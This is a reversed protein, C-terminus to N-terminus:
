GVLTWPTWAKKTTSYTRAYSLKPNDYHWTQQRVYGDAYMVDMYFSKYMTTYPNGRLTEAIENDVCHFHGEKKLENLNTKANLKWRTMEAKVTIDKTGDFDIGNIKRPTELKTAKLAKEALKAVGNIFRSELTDVAKKLWSVKNTEAEITNLRENITDLNAIRVWKATDRQYWVEIDSGQYVMLVRSNWNGEDDSYQELVGTIAKDYPSHNLQINDITWRGPTKFTSLDTANSLHGAYRNNTKIHESGDFPVGDITTTNKFKDATSANGTINAILSKLYKKTGDITEDGSKHVLDGDNSAKVSIDDVGNFESGNVKGGGNLKTAVDAHLAKEIVGRINEIFLKTGRVEEDGITHVVNNTKDTIQKTLSDNLTNLDQMQAIANDDITLDFQVGDSFALNVGYKISGHADGGGAPIFDAETAIVIAFLIEKNTRDKVYVGISRIYTDTHIRTSDFVGWFSYVQGKKVIESPLVSLVEDSMKSLKSVDTKSYDHSSISIRSVRNLEKHQLADAVASLGLTTFQAQELKAM